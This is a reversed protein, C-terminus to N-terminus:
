APLPTRPGAPKTYTALDPKAEYYALTERMRKSNLAVNLERLRHSRLLGAAFSALAHLLVRAAREHALASLAGEANLALRSLAHLAEFRASASKSTAVIKVLAKAAHAHLLRLRIAPEAAALSGVLQAGVTQLFADRSRCLMAIVNPAFVRVVQRAIGGGSPDPPEGGGGAGGSSSSGNSKGGGSSSVDSSSGGGGSTGAPQPADLAILSLTCAACRVADPNASRLLSYIADLGDPKALIARRVEESRALLALALAAAGQAEAEQHTSLSLLGELAGMQLLMPCRKENLAAAAVGLAAHGRASPTYKHTLMALARLQEEPQSEAATAALHLLSALSSAARSQLAPNSDASLVFLSRIGGLGLSSPLTDRRTSVDFLEGAFHELLKWDLKPLEQMRNFFRSGYELFLIVVILLVASALPSIFLEEPALVGM